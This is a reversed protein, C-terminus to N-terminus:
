QVVEYILTEGERFVEDLMGLEVMTEFKDFGHTPCVMPGVEVSPDVPVCESPSVDPSQMGIPYASLDCAVSDGDVTPLCTLVKGFYIREVKGLIVYQVDYYDLFDVAEEVSRTIYFNVIARVREEVTGPQGSVRQQRQHWNWGLVGPLGTYITYRSGWRYEPINAEVITPSGQVNEQMWRIAQYDEELSFAEGLEARTAYLMFRQGDLTHPADPAMRDRMKAPAATMPYLAASFILAGVILYWVRRWQFSWDSLYALTWALAAAAALSFMEWAQLYFKFVTNMRSIDGELVVIEVLFTLAIGVGTLILTVRKEVPLRPQLLLIGTWVLLPIILIAVVYGKGILFATLIVVGIVSIVIASIFPRIQQLASIPTTAMWMRTEWVMWLIIVTLFLGHVTLYDILPTLSGEWIRASEYGLGYWRHYPQYLFQALGILVLAMLAAETITKASFKKHRIWVAYVVASAGLVWYVPFDWTNTPRLSGLILGGVFLGLGVDIWRRKGQEAALLMALGWGIALVTIPRSIMHAHLDAYLFTFFPFETIPGAEGEAPTIVRSPNWYWEGLSYPMHQETTVYLSLGRVAQSLGVLLKGPEGEQITGIQKLGEYQMRVTGLNGLVVLALASAVGAVRPNPHRLSAERNRYRVILNYGVSYAVLALLSFLTPLVLNYATAPVVGLLKIPMAVIVFGFYYYNIYGGAFWPDYPPFTTSKLVANLYSFDMPKEGGKAPHWLDPNGLRIALDFLFFALALVETWLIERWHGRVYVILDERDRWAITLSLFGMALLVLFITGKTVPVGISGLMWSGWAVVLLGVVRALPYGGDKLGPFAVRTIPFALLGMLGIGLWWVVVGIPQYRNVLSDSNFLESWTGGASQSELRDPPLMLTIPIKTAERPSQVIVTSLDIAELIVKVQDIDFDDRKEFIWVPAHDYVSFAEEAAFPNFNFLPLEPTKGWAVRGGVDSFYLPGIQIPATFNAALDYGLRGDFLARYYEMTMPYTLPLRSTSWIARQSPLIIYDVQELNELFMLLKDEVDPWRVEMRVGRYMGGFPDRGEMRLPLAEDWSEVSITTGVMILPGGEPASVILYYTQGSELLAPGFPTDYVSGQPNISEPEVLIDKQAIIEIGEPDAALIVRLVGMTDSPNQTRGVTLSQITGAVQPRFQLVLPVDAEFRSDYPVPIPETYLGSSTDIHLNFPAPVNEYIWRTAKIRTNDQYYVARVFGWAWALTGFIVVAGLVLAGLNLLSRYIKQLRVSRENETEISTKTAGLNWLEIIAWAAFLCMFPYIPLLYRISKVWRTSMFLFYGGAWVLPLLHARMEDRNKYARWAAWAFGVWVMLGLPLGMGWLVMNVFPFIIPTRNAWQEGPPGGGIGRSENSAVKMSQVWEPNPRLTLITTDGTEARFAMPHVVRFTLLATISVLILPVGVNLVIKNPNNLLEPWSDVNAIFISILIMGALPILNIRSALAMAFFVGFLAYWKWDGSSLRDKLETVIESVNSASELSRKFDNAGQAARVACYMALTSFFVGYTEVTMFHSSQIQMAALASLAAALLGVRYHYLRRGILFIILLSLSDLVASLRRGMLRMEGYGTNNTMEAVFRIIIIPWQGWRMSNDPGHQTPQGNEDYKQYPSITSLRTNFYDGISDPIELQTLTNTLGYEDPHLNTGQNWDVWSFRFFVGIAILLILLLNFMTDLLRFVKERGIPSANMTAQTSPMQEQSSLKDSTQM